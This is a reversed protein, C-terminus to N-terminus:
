QTLIPIYINTINEDEPYEEIDPISDLNYNLYPIVCAYIMKTYNSIDKSNRSSITFKLFSKNKITYNQSKPFKYTSAIHYTVKNPTTTIKNYEVIGYRISNSPFDNSKLTTNWFSAIGNSTNEIYITKSISYLNFTINKIISYEIEEFSKNFNAFDFVPLVKLNNKNNTIGKPSFGMMKKFSRGFSTASEYGYKLAVDIVKEGNLLDNCAISLRRKRIYESLSLNTVFYFIRHLTYENVCLIQALTKYDLEKNLNKEIYIILSNLKDISGNLCLFVGKVINYCIFM